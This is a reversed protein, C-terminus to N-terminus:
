RFLGDLCGQVSFFQQRLHSFIIKVVMLPIIVNIAQTAIGFSLDEFELM